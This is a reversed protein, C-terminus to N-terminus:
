AILALWCIRSIICKCELENMGAINVRSFKAAYDDHASNSQRIKNLRRCRDNPYELNIIYDMKLIRAM